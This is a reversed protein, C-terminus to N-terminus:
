PGGQMKQHVLQLFPRLDGRSAAVGALNQWVALRALSDDIEAQVLLTQAEAVEVITALGTQYRAREQMETDRAAQLEVPTAEAVRRAGELSAEAKRFQGTLDQITQDYRAAEARENALEINKKARISFIDFAPFTATLGVAWDFRDLELGASGGGFTGDTNAGSGRGFVASQLNFKPYYSRDLAHVQFHFEQVRAQQEQALPHEAIASAPPPAEPPLGLLPGERVEVLDNAIGLVDALAARSIEQQQQARALNAKSRALEANARSAEAGARLQNDVLVNVSRAFVQRREVDSQAARVTQEAAVLTLYSNVTAVAVDLRTLSVEVTARSQAARAVNVEAARRGFDIPEWAFLLGAASGWVGQNSTGPLVPGSISPIIQQPLLLGFINNRTARNGQWLMDARPLYETRALSVGSQAASARALSSRVAPYNKLAFDVAEELTFTKTKSDSSQASM